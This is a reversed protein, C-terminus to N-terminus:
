LFDNIAAGVGLLRVQGTFLDNGGGGVGFNFVFNDGLLLLKM